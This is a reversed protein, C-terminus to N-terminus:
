RLKVFLVDRGRAIWRYVSRPGLGLANGIDSVSEGRLSATMIYRMPDSLDNIARILDMQTDITEYFGDAWWVEESLSESQRGRDRFQVTAKGGCGSLLVSLWRAYTGALPNFKLGREKRILDAFRILMEQTVDDICDYPLGSRRCAARAHRRVIAQFADSQLFLCWISQWDQNTKLYRAHANELDDLTRVSRTANKM